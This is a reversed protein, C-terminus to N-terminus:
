WDNTPQELMKSGLLMKGDYCFIGCVKTYFSRRKKEMYFTTKEEDEEAMRIQHYGKYADLFFKYRFGDLSEIKQDIEPPPYIVPNAVWQLFYVEKLIRAEVLKDVEATVAENRDKALVRKKQRVPFTFLHINLKHEALERPIGTMNCLYWAFIDKNECLIRQLEQKIRAPLRTGIGVPQDPYMTNIVVNEKETENGPPELIVITECERERKRSIQLCINKQPMDGRIIAVGSKLPFKILSHIMSAMAGLQRMGPRGLIVNYPYSARIIMFDTTITRSGKGAYDSFTFSATIVGLPWLVQGSFGVLPSTLLRLSAKTKNDLQLLCHEYMIEASSGRDVYIRHIISGGIEAKIVLPDDGSCHEKDMMLVKNGAKPAVVKQKWDPQNKGKEAASSSTLNQSSNQAKAGKALHSLRGNRVCTEIEKRLDVCDNTDHGHDNHFECYRTRIGLYAPDFSGRRNTLFSIGKSTCINRPPNLLLPLIPRNCALRKSPRTIPSCM